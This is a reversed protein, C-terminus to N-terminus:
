LRFNIISFNWIFDESIILNRTQQTGQTHHTM